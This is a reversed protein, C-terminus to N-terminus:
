SSNDELKEIIFQFKEKMLTYVTIFNSWTTLLTLVLTWDGDEIVLDFNVCKLRNMFTFSGSDLLISM